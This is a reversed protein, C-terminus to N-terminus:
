KARALVHDAVVINCQHGGREEVGMAVHKPKPVCHPPQRRRRSANEAVRAPSMFPEQIAVERGRVHEDSGGVAGQAPPRLAWCRDDMARRVAGM